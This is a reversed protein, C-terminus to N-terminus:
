RVAGRRSGNKGPVHRYRNRHSNTAGYKAVLKRECKEMKASHAWGKIHLAAHIFLLLCYARPTLGHSSAERVAAPPCVIIEANKEGVVYSLVNPAYKKKRLQRNLESARTTGVFVLSINWGPLIDEAVETFPLGELVKSHQRTFNKISVSDM